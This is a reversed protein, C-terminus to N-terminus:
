RGGPHAQSTVRELGHDGPRVPHESRGPGLSGESRLLGAPSEPVPRLAPLSLCVARNRCVSAAPDEPGLGALNLRPAAALAALGQAAAAV